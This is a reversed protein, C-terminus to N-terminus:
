PNIENIGNEEFKKARKSCIVESMFNFLSDSKFIKSSDKCIKFAEPM